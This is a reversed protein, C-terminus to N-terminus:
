EEEYIEEVFEVDQEEVTEYFEIEAGCFPCFDPSGDVDRIFYSVTYESDCGSCSFSSQKNSTNYLSNKM